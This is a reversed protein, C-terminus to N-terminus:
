ITIVQLTVVNLYKKAFENTLKVEERIIDHMTAMDFNEPLLFKDLKRM